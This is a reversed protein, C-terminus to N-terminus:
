ATRAEGSILASSTRAELESVPIDLALSLESFLLLKAQKLFSEDSIHLRRGKSKKLEQQLLLTKILSLMEKRDGGSIVERYLLKRENEDDTWILPLGSVSSLLEHADSPSIVARMRSVLKEDNTPVYLTSNEDSVPVLVYYETMGGGFDISETRVIKCPGNTGYIVTSGSIFM